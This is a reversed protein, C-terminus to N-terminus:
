DLMFQASLSVHSIPTTPARVYQQKSIKDSIHSLPLGVGYSAMIQARKNRYEVAALLLNPLLLAHHEGPQRALQPRFLFEPGVWLREMVQFRGALALKLQPGWAFESLEILPRYLFSLEAGWEVRPWLQNMLLGMEGRTRREGSLARPSGLPLYIAGLARLATRGFARRYGVELMPDLGGFHPLPDQEGTVPRLGEGFQYVHAGFGLGADLGNSWFRAVTMEFVLAGAMVHGRTGDSEATPVVVSLPRDLYSLSVKTAARDTSSPIGRVTLYPSPTISLRYPVTEIGSESLTEAHLRGSLACLTLVIASWWLFTRCRHRSYAPDSRTVIM